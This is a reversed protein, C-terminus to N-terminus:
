DYFEYHERKMNDIEYSIHDICYNLEDLSIHGINGLRFVEKNKIKASYIVIKKKLLRRYLKEFSFGKFPYYFVVMIPGQNKNSVFSKLGCEDELRSRLIKNFELYQKYRSDVGGSEILEEVAEYLSNVIQPPPTFRFQQNNVFEVYQDYLDLSYSMRMNQISSKKAIVFSIGPFGHLCKNSSSVFFDIDLKEINTSIGGFSSIGDILVTKNEWKLYPVIEEINNVVGNSTEHHVLSVYKEFISHNFLNKVNIKKDEDFDLKRTKIGYTESIESLRNGYVGNSLVLHQAKKDFSGIVSENAFTGCGGILICEYNKPSVQGIDLLNKRLRTIRKIFNHERSAIDKTMSDKVRQSTTVPGPILIINKQYNFNSLIRMNKLRPYNLKKISNLISSM